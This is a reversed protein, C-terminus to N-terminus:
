APILDRRASPLLRLLKGVPGAATIERRALACALNLEGALFRQATAADMTLVVDAALSCPGCVVSPDRDSRLDATLLAEPERLRYQVVADVRRARRALDELLPRLREYVEEELVM